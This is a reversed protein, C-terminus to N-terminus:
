EKEKLLRSSFKKDFEKPLSNITPLYKLNWEEIDFPLNSTSLTGLLLPNGIRRTLNNAINHKSRIWAINEVENPRYARRVDAIDNMLRMQRPKRSKTITDFISKADTFMVTQVHLFTKQCRRHSVKWLTVM